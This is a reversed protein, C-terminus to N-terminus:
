PGQIWGLPQSWPGYNTFMLARSIHSSIGQNMADGPGQCSNHQRHLFRLLRQRKLVLNQPEGHSCCDHTSRHPRCTVKLSISGERHQFFPRSYSSLFREQQHGPEKCWWTKLLWSIAFNAMNVESLVFHTCSGANCKLKNTNEPLHRGLPGGKVRGIAPLTVTLSPAARTRACLPAWPLFRPTTLWWSAWIGRESSRAAETTPGRAPWRSPRPWRGGRGRSAAAAGAASRSRSPSNVCQSISGLINLSLDPDEIM